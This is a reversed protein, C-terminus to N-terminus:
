RTEFKHCGTQSVKMDLVKGHVRSFHDTLWGAKVFSKHCGEETCYYEEVDPHESMRHSIFESWTDLTLSCERCTTKAKAEEELEKAHLSQEHETALARTKFGLNCFQCRFFSTFFPKLSPKSM